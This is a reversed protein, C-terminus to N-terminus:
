FLQTQLMCASKSPAPVPWPQLQSESYINLSKNPNQEWCLMLSAKQLQSLSGNRSTIPLLPTQFARTLLFHIISLTAEKARSHTAPKDNFYVSNDKYSSTHLSLMIPVDWPYLSLLSLTLFHPQTARWIGPLSPDLREAHSTALFISTSLCNCFSESRAKRPYNLLWIERTQSGWKGSSLAM